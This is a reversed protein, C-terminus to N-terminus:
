RGPPVCGIKAVTNGRGANVKLPAAIAANNSDTASSTFIVDMPHAGALEAVQERAAM